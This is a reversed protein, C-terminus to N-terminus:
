RGPKTVIMENGIKMFSKWLSKNQIFVKMRVRSLPTGDEEQQASMKGTGGAGGCNDARADDLLKQTSQYETPSFLKSSIVTQVATPRYTPLWYEQKSSIM